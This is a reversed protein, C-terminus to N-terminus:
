INAKVPNEATDSRSFRELVGNGEQPNWEITEYKVNESPDIFHDSFCSPQERAVQNQTDAEIKQHDGEWQCIEKDIIGSKVPPMIPIM